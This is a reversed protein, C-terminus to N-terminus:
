TSLMEEITDVYNEACGSTPDLMENCGVLLQEPKRTKPNMFCLFLAVAQLSPTIKSADFMIGFAEPIMDRIKSLVGHYLRRMGKHFTALSIPKMHVFTRLQKNLM